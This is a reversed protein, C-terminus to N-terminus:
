DNNLLIRNLKYKSVVKNRSVNIIFCQISLFHM